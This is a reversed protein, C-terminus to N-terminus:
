HRIIVQRTRIGGPTILKVFYVGSSWTATRFSETWHGAAAQRERSEILKGAADSIQLTARSNDALDFSAEFSESSPNPAIRLYSLGEEKSNSKRITGPGIPITKCGPFEVPITCVVDGSPDLLELMKIVPGSSYNCESGVVLSPAGLPPLTNLIQHGQLLTDGNMERITYVQKCRYCPNLNLHYQFCCPHGIFPPQHHKLQVQVAECCSVGQCSVFVNKQCVTDGSNNIFYGTFTRFQGTTLCYSISYGMSYGPRIDVQGPHSTKIGTIGCANSGEPIGFFVTGSCNGGAAAMENRAVMEDCCNECSHLTDTQACMIRGTASLFEVVIVAKGNVFKNKDICIDFFDPPLHGKTLKATDLHDLLTDQVAPMRVRLGYPACVFGAINVPSFLGHVFEYCCATPTSEKHTYLKLQRFYNYDTFLENCTKCCTDNLTVNVTDAITCFSDLSMRIIYRGSKSATILRGPTVNSDPDTWQYTIGCNSDSLQHGLEVPKCSVTDPLDLFTIYQRAFKAGTGSTFGWWASNGLDNRINRNLIRRPVAMNDFYVYLRSTDGANGDNDPVWRIRVKHCLGDEIETSAPSAQVPGGCLSRGAGAYYMIGNAFIDIHDVEGFISTTDVMGGWFDNWYTDFEIDISPRLGSLTDGVGTGFGLYGAGAAIPLGPVSDPRHQSQFVFAIGDAGQDLTELGFNLYFTSDFVRNLNFVTRSWIASRLHPAAPTMLHYPGCIQRASNVITNPQPPCTFTHVQAQVPFHPLALTCCAVLLRRLLSLHKRTQM